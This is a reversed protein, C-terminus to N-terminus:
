NWDVWTWGFGNLDAVDAWNWGFGNFHVCIRVTLDASIWDLENLDLCIREDLWIRQGL